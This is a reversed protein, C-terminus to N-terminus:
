AETHLFRASIKCLIQEHFGILCGVFMSLFNLVLCANGPRSVTMLNDRAAASAVIADVVASAPGVTVPLAVTVPLVDLTVHFPLPVNRMLLPTMREPVGASVTETVLPVRVLLPVVVPMKFEPLMPRSFLLLLPVMLPPVPTLLEPVIPVKVLVPVMVPVVL